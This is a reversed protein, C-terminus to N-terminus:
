QLEESKEGRPQFVAMPLKFVRKMVGYLEEGVATPSLPVALPDDWDGTIHVPVTVFAGDLVKGMIPTADIMREVTRQPAVLAVVDVKQRSLDIDGRFVMKMCPGDLVSESLVLKGSKIKGKAEISKFACGAGLDPLVGRYIESVSLLSVIKGFTEFRFIRGDKAEFTVDGELADVLSGGTEVKGSLNGTLTYSGTIVHKKNLLCSLASELDKDKASLGLSINLNEPGIGISGTTSIGCLSGQNLRVDISNPNLTVDADAPEWSLKGYFLRDSKVRIVGKFPVDLVEELSQFGSQVKDVKQKGEEAKRGKEAKGDETKRAGAKTKELAKELDFSDAFANMDVVYADGAFAVNGAINLSSGNWSISASKVNLSNGDAVIEAKEIRVASALNKVPAQFGSITIEGRATSKEPADLPLDVSLKGAIPGTLLRNDVLLRDATKNSLKGSFGVTLENHASNISIAADSDKDKISLDSISFERPTEVLNLTIDIGAPLGMQGVFAIKQERDWTLRSSKLELSSITKLWHPFGSLSAAIENAAPGLRGSLQLDVKKARDLYGTVAGSISLSSDALLAEVERFVIQDGSIELGGKKLTLPGNLWKDHLVVDEISGRAKFVWKSGESPQSTLRFSEIALFGKPPNDLFNKWYEHASLFPGLLEMSVMSRARSGIKFFHVDGWGCSLDMQEFSSNGIKAALSTADIKKEDMFFSSGKLDIPEPLSGYRGFLEFPGTEVHVDLAKIDEGLVLRGQAKGGVDRIKALEQRFAQDQVVRNLVDPLESLDAKIPLDMHFLHNEKPLGITLEGDSTSSGDTQGCLRTGKLVGNEIVVNGSVNSVLLDCKPAFVFGKEISGNLAFNEFKGLDSFKNAHSSFHISPVEGERIIRFVKRTVPHKRAVTEMIKRIEAVDVEEGDINLAVNRDSFREVYRATLNLRPHEFQCHSISVDIGNADMNVAGAIVGNTMVIEGSGPALSRLAPLTEPRDDETKVVERAQGTGPGSIAGEDPNTVAGAGFSFRSATVQFDGRISGPGGASLVLSLDVQSGNKESSAINVYRLLDGPNGGTLNLEAWGKFSCLDIWGTIALAEWLNSKGSTVEFDVRDDHVSSRLDIEEFSFARNQGFFVELGGNRADIVMGPIMAVLMPQIQCVKDKLHQLRQAVPRTLNETQEPLRATVKPDLLVMEAPAFRGTLLPLIKPYIVVTEASAAVADPVVMKVGHLAIRPFPLFSVKIRESQLHYRMDLEAALKRGIADTDLIRPLIVAASALLVLFIGAGSGVWLLIKRVKAM